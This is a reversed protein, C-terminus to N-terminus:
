EVPRRLTLPDFAVSKPDRVGGLASTRANRPSHAFDTLRTLKERRNLLKRHQARGDGDTLRERDISGTDSMSKSPDCM